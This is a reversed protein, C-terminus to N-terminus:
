AAILAQTHVDKPLDICLKNEITYVDGLFRHIQLFHKSSNQDAAYINPSLTTFAPDWFLKCNSISGRCFTWHRVKLRSSYKEPGEGSFPPLSYCNNTLTGRKPLHGYNWPTLDRTELINANWTESLDKDRKAFVNM